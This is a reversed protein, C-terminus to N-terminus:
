AEPPVPLFEWNRSGERFNKKIVPLRRRGCFGSHTAVRPVMEFSGRNALSSNTVWISEEVEEWPQEARRPNDAPLNALHNIVYQVPIWVKEFRRTVGLWSYTIPNYAVRVFPNMYIGADQPDPRQIDAHILCCESADWYLDEEVRFRYPLTLNTPSQSAATNVARDSTLQFYKADFAVMGGWCSRVRVADREDRVDTRSQASGATSFWPYLPLGMSYGELDRTAFTDYFLVPNIFDLACAARYNTRGTEDINTSFLLQIVDEPDFIVDNLYLLKDYKVDTYYLPALARNRVEALYAIRKVRESGNPLTVHPLTDFSIHDEYKVQHPCPVRSEFLELAQMGKAGSDNEYISLFVNDPGLIDVLDLVNQGWDGGLLKGNRDFISAAIFVKEQHLNGRASRDSSRMRKQLDVYHPPLHTYSPFFLAAFIVSVLITTLLGYVLFSVKRVVSRRLFPRRLADIRQKSRRRLRRVRLRPPILSLLLFWASTWTSSPVHQGPLLPADFSANAHLEYEDQSDFDHEHGLGYEERHDAKWPM